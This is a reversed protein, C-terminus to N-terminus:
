IEACPHTYSDVLKNDSIRYILWRDSIGDTVCENGFRRAMELDDYDFRTGSQQRLVYLQYTNM